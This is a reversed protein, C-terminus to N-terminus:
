FGSVKQSGGGKQSGHNEVRITDCWPPVGGLAIRVPALRLIVILISFGLAGGKSEFEFLERKPSFSNSCLDKQVRFGGLDM